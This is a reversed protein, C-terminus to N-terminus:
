GNFSAIRADLHRLMPNDDGAIGPYRTGAAAAIRAQRDSIAVSRVLAFVEHWALHVVPRGLAREYYEIAAERGLFGPV